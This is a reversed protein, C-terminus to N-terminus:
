VLTTLRPRWHCQRRNCDCADTDTIMSFIAHAHATRRKREPRSEVVRPHPKPRPECQMYPHPKNYSKFMHNEYMCTGLQMGEGGPARVLFSTMQGSVVSHSYASWSRRLCCVTPNQCMCSAVVTCPQEVCGKVFLRAQRDENVSLPMCYVCIQRMKRTYGLMRKHVGHCPMHCPWCIHCMGSHRYPAVFFREGLV